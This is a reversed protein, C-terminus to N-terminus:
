LSQICICIVEFMFPPVVVIFEPQMGTSGLGRIIVNTYSMHFLICMQKSDSLRKKYFFFLTRDQKVIQM